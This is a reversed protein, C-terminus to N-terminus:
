RSKRKISEYFEGSLLIYYIQTAAFSEMNLEM